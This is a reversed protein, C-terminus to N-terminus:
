AIWVLERHLNVIGNEVAVILVDGSGGGKRTTTVEYELGATPQEAAVRISTILGPDVDKIPSSVGPRPTRRDVLRQHRIARVISVADEYAVGDGLRIDVHWNDDRIRWREQREPNNPGLIGVWNGQREVRNGAPVPHCGAGRVQRVLLNSSLVRNGDLVRTSEVELLVCESIIRRQVVRPDDIGVRRAIELIARRDSPGVYTPVIWETGGSQAGATAAFLAWMLM